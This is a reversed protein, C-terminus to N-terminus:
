AAGQSAKEGWYSQAFTCLDRVVALGLIILSTKVITSLNGASIGQDVVIRLLQPNILNTATVILLCVFAGLTIRWYKGLYGFARWLDGM